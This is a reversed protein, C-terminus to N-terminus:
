KWIKSAVGILVLLVSGGLFVWGVAALTPEMMYSPAAGIGASGVSLCVFSLVENWKDRRGREQTRAHEVRLDNYQQRIEKHDACETDLREIEAILFRRAAPSALEEESLDRRAPTLFRRADKEQDAANESHVPTSGAEETASPDIRKDAM